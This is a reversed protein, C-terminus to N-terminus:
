VRAGGKRDLVAAAPAAAASLGPRDRSDNYTFGCEPCRLGRLPAECKPCSAPLRRVDHARPGRPGHTPTFSVVDGVGLAIGDAVTDVHVFYNRGIVGVFGFKRDYLWRVVIGVLRESM